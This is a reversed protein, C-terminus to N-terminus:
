SKFLDLSLLKLIGKKKKKPELHPCSVSRPLGSLTAPESSSVREKGKIQNDKGPSLCPLYKSEDGISRRPNLDSTDDMIAAVSEVSQSSVKDLIATKGSKTYEDLCISSNHDLDIPRSKTDLENVQGEFQIPVTKSPSNFGVGFPRMMSLSSIANPNIDITEMSSELSFAAGFIRVVDLGNGGNTPSCPQETPVSPMEVKSWALPLQLTKAIREWNWQEKKDANEGCFNVPTIDRLVDPIHDFNCAEFM